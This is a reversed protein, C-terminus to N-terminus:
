EYSNVPYSCKSTWATGISTGYIQLLTNVTKGTGIAVARVQFARDCWTKEAGDRDTKQLWRFVQRKLHENGQSKYHRHHSKTCKLQDDLKGNGPWKESGCLLLVLSVDKHLEWTKSIRITSDKAFYRYKEYCCDM